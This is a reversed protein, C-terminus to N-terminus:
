RRSTACSGPVARAPLEAQEYAALETPAPAAPEAREPTSREKHAPLTAATLLLGDCSAWRGYLWSLRRGRVMPGAVLLRVSFARRRRDIAIVADEFGLWRGALPYWTKYVAEKMSFLLRDWRITPSECMLAQLSEREWPHTVDNLLGHPLPENPEADIGISAIQGAHAAACARYGDCHTVSGVIGAPWLPAGRGDALVARPPIGLQALAARACARASTFESRRKEVARAVLAREEPFLSANPVEGRREAIAVCDPLIEDLM